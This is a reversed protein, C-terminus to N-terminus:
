RILPEQWCGTMWSTSVNVANAATSMTGNVPDVKTGQAYITQALTSLGAIDAYSHGVDRGMEISQVHYDSPDM